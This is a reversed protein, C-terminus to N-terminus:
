RSDAEDVDRSEDWDDAWGDLWRRPCRRNARCRNDFQRDPTERGANPEAAGFTVASGARDLGAISSMKAEVGDKTMKLEDARTVTAAAISLIGGLIPM